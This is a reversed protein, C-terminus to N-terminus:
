LQPALVRMFNEIIRRAKTGEVMTKDSNLMLTDIWNEVEEILGSSYAFSVVEYNVLLSRNDINVSGIMLANSDFLIAKAHLMNGTYLVLDIENDSLERMYSSRSLDALLHNSQKPTILKVDVGRHKAIILARIFSEDPVFYPTVIWIREKANYIKSVLSEYLPDGIIDPGSPVVQLQTDGYIKIEPQKLKRAIKNNAYAWDAEFIQAYEYTAYGQTKFLLDVWEESTKVPALYESSLNMGGSLLTEDDFLYIKRHNRLNIYNQYPLRFLPMFFKVKGGAERLEKLCGQFFYLKYSGLSDIIIRVDVGELAKQSLAQLLKQTMFDNKFVYTSISINKTAKMIEQMLTEYATVSDRILEFDNNTTVGSTSSNKIAGDDYHKLKLFSKNKSDPRKRVGILFYLLISVYPFVIFSFLWSIISTPTRRQYLM